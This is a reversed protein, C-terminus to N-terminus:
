TQMERPTGFAARRERSVVGGDLEKLNWFFGTLIAEYDQREKLRRNKGEKRLQTSFDNDRAQWEDRSKSLANYHITFSEIDDLAQIPIPSESASDANNERALELEQPSFVYPYFEFNIINLRLDLVRLTSRSNQLGVLIDEMKTINNSLIQLKKLQRLNSLGKLDTLKNFSLNLERVNFFKDSFDEPLVSLGVASLNLQNVNYFANISCNPLFSILSTNGSFDVSAVDVAARSLKEMIEASSQSKASLEQLHELKNLGTISTLANGDLRLIRLNPFFELNLEKLHNFKCLLKKLRRHPRRSNLSEIRNENVNLVRLNELSDIGTVATISNESLNLEKLNPLNLKELHVTGSINNRGLNMSTLAHIAPFGELSDIENGMLNIKTLNVNKNFCSFSRISNFSANVVQLDHFKHFSTMDSLNNRTVDLEFLESPLGEVFKLKNKSLDISKVAPLYHELNEVRDINKDSLDISTITEWVIQDTSGTILSVLDKNTQSFTANGFESVSTVDPLQSQMNRSTETEAETTPIHFSVELNKKERIKPKDHQIFSGKKPKVQMRSDDSTNSFLDEISDLSAGIDNEKDKSVWKNRTSDFVMNGYQDPFNGPKVTGKVYSSDKGPPINAKNSSTSLLRLQSPRKWRIPNHTGPSVISAKRCNHGVHNPGKPNPPAPNAHSPVEKMFKKVSSMSSEFLPLSGDMDMGGMGPSPSDIRQATTKESAKIASSQETSGSESEFESLEDFTYSNHDDQDESLPLTSSTLNAKALNTKDIDTYENLADTTNQHHAHHFAMSGESGSTYSYLDSSERRLDSATRQPKPTSTATTQSRSLFHSKQQFSTNDAAEPVAESQHGKKRINAFLNNANNMFDQDTYQQAKTFRKINLKPVQHPVPRAAVPLPERQISNANSRVNDVFKGLIAKTFTDYENGFLKLPSGKIQYDDPQHKAKELMDELQHIQQQTLHLESDRTAVPTSVTSMSAFGSHGTAKSTQPHPNQHTQTHPVSDDIGSFINKLPSEGKPVRNNQYEKSMKKWMPTVPAASSQAPNHVFTNSNSNLFDLSSSPPLLTNKNASIASSGNAGFPEPYEEWKEDLGQPMWSPTHQQDSFNLNNFHSILSGDSARPDRNISHDMPRPLTNQRANTDKPDRAHHPHEARDPQRSGHPEERASAHSTEELSSLGIHHKTKANPHSKHKFTNPVSAGNGPSASGNAPSNLQTGQPGQSGQSGQSLGHFGTNPVYRLMKKYKNNNNKHDDSQCLDGDDSTDSTNHQVEVDLQPTSAFRFNSSHLSSATQASAPQPNPMVHSKLTHYKISEPSGPSTSPGSRASSGSSGSSGSGMPNAMAVPKRPQTEEHPSFESFRTENLFRDVNAATASDLSITM